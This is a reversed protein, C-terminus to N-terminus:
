EYKPSSTNKVFSYVDSAVEEVLSWEKLQIAAILRGNISKLLEEPDEFKSYPKLNNSLSDLDESLGHQSDTYQEKVVKKVLKVLDSESLKIIKGM